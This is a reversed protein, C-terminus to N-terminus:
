GQERASGARRFLAEKGFYTVLMYYVVARYKNPESRGYSEIVADIADILHPGDPLSLKRILFNNKVTELEHPDTAAVTSADPDYILPGCGLTVQTLLPMDPVIGCKDRLDDAYRAILEDRRGM